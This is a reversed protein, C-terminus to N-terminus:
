TSPRAVTIPEYSLSTMPHSTVADEPPYSTMANGPPLSTMNDTPKQASMELEKKSKRRRRFNGNDFM